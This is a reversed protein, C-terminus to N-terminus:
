WACGVGPRGQLSTRSCSSEFYREVQLRDLDLGAGLCFGRVCRSPVVCLVRADSKLIKKLQVGRYFTSSFIRQSILADDELGAADQQATERIGDVESVDLTHHPYERDQMM